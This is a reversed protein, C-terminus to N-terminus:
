HRAQPRAERWSRWISVLDASQVPESMRAVALAAEWASFPSGDMLDRDGLVSLYAGHLRDLVDRTAGDLHKNSAQGPAPPRMLLSSRTLDAVPHGIAADFWDVVVWGRPSRLLNAPHIDGHCLASGGPLSALLDHAAAREAVSVQGAEDIKDHLRTVLDPLGDVPGAAHITVQLDVLEEVLGRLGAPSAKMRAWMSEGEVREFVIGPRGDIEVIGETAPAPLGAEHVCRTIDAELAAWHAPIGPHLVKVVTRPTWHWVDATNGRAVLDGLTHDQGAM